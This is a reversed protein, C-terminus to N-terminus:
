SAFTSMFNTNLIDNGTNFNSQNQEQKEQKEVPFYDYTDPRVIGDWDAKSKERELM